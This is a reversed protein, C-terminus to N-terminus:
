TLTKLGSKEVFITMLFFISLSCLIQKQNTDYNKNTGCMEKIYPQTSIKM